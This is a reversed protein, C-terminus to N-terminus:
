NSDKEKGDVEETGEDNKWKENQRAIFDDLDFTEPKKNFGYVSMYEDDRVYGPLFYEDANTTSM